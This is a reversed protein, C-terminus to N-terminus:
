AFKGRTDMVFAMYEDLTESSKKGPPELSRYALIAYSFSGNSRKVWAFDHKQLSCVAAELEDSKSEQPIMHSQCRITDGLDYDGRFGKSVSSSAPHIPEEEAIKDMRAPLSTTRQLRPPLPAFSVSARRAAQRKPKYWTEYTGNSTGALNFLQFHTHKLM